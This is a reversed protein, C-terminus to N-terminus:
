PVVIATPHRTNAALPWRQPDGSGWGWFSGDTRVAFSNNGVAFIARVATIKATVPSPQFTGTLGAGIQGWDTNGWGRLTGDELLALVHRGNIAASIAVVKGVGPVRQPVSQTGVSPHSTRQGNGFQAQGNAGWVWVTGDHKVAISVDGAAAIAIVGSLDPVVAPPEFGEQKPERGLAGYRNNGWAWVRGGKTLALAHSWGPAVDVVDTPGPVVAPLHPSSGPQRSPWTRLTGDALLAFAGVPGAAIKQAGSVAVRMPREAGRYETATTSHQLIPLKPDSGTGLDGNRGDGWAWVSGDELLAYSTGERAAIDTARGALAMRAPRTVWSRTTELGAVPGLQGHTWLGWGIVDGSSLLALKHAEGVVKVVTVPSPAPTQARPSPARVVLAVAILLPVLAIRRPM